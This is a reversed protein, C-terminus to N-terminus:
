REHKVSAPADETAGLARLTSKQAQSLGRIGTINLREYPRDRRLTQLHEGSQLDWVQIISDDGCSALRRDDSSAKLSQVAGQHGQRISLGKGHQIDWWRLNGDSSGSILVEGTPSWALADVIAKPENWSQLCKGNQVDWIFIEGSGGGGGGSALRTGDPSWAVSMVMGSHGQLSAQLRGDSAEWLCVSGDDGCSALQSGDPSWAVRRIRTPQVRGAWLRTGTPVEWVQVGQQYSASALQTGDPSWAVGYFLTNSHDPDHLSQLVEGTTADWLRVANDWGSSALWRGDPSWAVGFVLSDHGAFLRPPRLGEMEWIPVLTDSGASALQSGDPSWAVDYLSVAYGQLIRICQGYDVDWVRLTGDESGSLLSRSDPTFAINYVGASHEHLGPRYRASSSDWLWITQDFGCSALLHGDPSWAVARVRDAHGTLTQHLSLSEVDWLRVTADWSASALRTGDPAFALGLIWNTHGTLVRVPTGPQTLSLDWLQIDRNVGGSALTRGDPSWALAFVPGGQDPLTQRHVGTHVDWFQVTADDGGSALTCGDPSFALCEINDTFWSTWLLSGSEVNWLKISGDWSGTALTLGDPSFAIARVTDTHAQWSLHLLKGEESWLSVEGRRSGVAWYQGTPSIAVAWPIDFAENLVTERLSARALSADQMEVGRLYAGRISIQSLDLGRLHGRLERLLVLVNAPGYGQAYDAWTRLQELLALLHEEMATRVPYIGRLITLLPTVILRQQTQRVYEKATALELGHQIFRVPRGQEIERSMETILRATAYELVVSQLTFSRQLQGPEILSRRRLGDVAELVQSRTRPMGLMVLLEELNVPERVISLWLLVGQESASLRAYQEDLLERVGGFIVENQELFPAIEGSFLEVITQAVIKLALPNGAYAEILRSHDAASGTVDKEGLLQACADVDLRALRLARVPARSGEHPVLEGPKERSTLLLCSQHETEALQRLLQAYGEYGPRMHGANQGEELLVELNDLVLLTRTRRLCELLLSFRKELSVPMDRLPQFALTQLCEDLLAECAPADRLSRWIVVEFREAVQHMLRVALSSKGIGGLGLVSVVRCREEVVWSALLNLEWKRGYFTTVTLADSWAVLPGNATPALKQATSGVEEAPQSAPSAERRPLLGALWAEDLPVKQHAAQWFAHIEEQERGVSFAQHEIALAIFSKLHEVKPYTLGAEWEGVAKRSVLLEKALGAQTLGITTRLTLISQGFTYDRDRYSSKKM